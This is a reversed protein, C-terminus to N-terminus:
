VVAPFCIKWLSCHQILVGFIFSVGDVLMMLVNEWNTPFLFSYESSFNRTALMTTLIAGQLRFPAGTLQLLVPWCPLWFPFGGKTTKSQLLCLCTKKQKKPRHAFLVALRSICPLALVEYHSIRTFALFHVLASQPVNEKSALHGNEAFRLTWEFASPICREQISAKFCRGSHFIQWLM